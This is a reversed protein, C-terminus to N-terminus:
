RAHTAGEATDERVFVRLGGSGPEERYFRLVDAGRPHQKLYTYLDYHGFLWNAQPETLLLRPKGQEIAAVLSDLLEREAPGMRGYHRWGSHVGRYLGPLIWLHNYPSLWRADAITVAPFFPLVDVSLAMVPASAAHTRMLHSVPCEWPVRGASEARQLRVAYQGVYAGWVCTGALLAVLAGRVRWRQWPKANVGLLWTLGLSVDMWAASGLAPLYHYDWAKNQAIGGVLLASSALMGLVTLHEFAKPRPLLLFLVFLWLWAAVEPTSLVQWHSPSFDGYYAFVLRLNAFASPECVAIWGGYVLLATPVPWNDALAQKFSRSLWVQQYAEVMLWMVVYHPKIAIAGALMVLITTSLWRPTSVERQRRFALLLYPLGAILILHDRQGFQHGLDRNAYPPLVVLALTTALVVVARPLREHGFLESALYRVLGIAGGCLALIFINLFFVVDWGTLQSLMVPITHLYFILPPNVGRIQEYLHEGALLKEAAVLYWSSDAYVPQYIGKAAGLVFAAVSLLSVVHTPKVAKPFM